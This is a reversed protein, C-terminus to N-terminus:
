SFWTDMEVSCDKFDSDTSVNLTVGHPSSLRYVYHKDGCYVYKDASTQRYVSTTLDALLGSASQLAIGQYLSFSRRGEDLWVTLMKTHLGPIGVQKFRAYAYTQASPPLLM